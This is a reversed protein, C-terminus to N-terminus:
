IDITMDDILQKFELKQLKFYHMFSSNISQITFQLCNAHINNHMNLVYLVHLGVIFNKFYSNLLLNNPPTINSLTVGGLIKKIPHSNEYIWRQIVNEM